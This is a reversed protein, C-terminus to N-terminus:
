KVQEATGLKQYTEIAANVAKAAGRSTYTAGALGQVENKGDPAAKVIKVEGDKGAFRALFEPDSGRSGIGPTEANSIVAAGKVSGDGNMVILMDLGDTNYGNVTVEFSINGAGDKLLKKINDPKELAYGEAQWDTVIRLYDAGGGTVSTYASKIKETVAGSTDPIVYTDMLVLAVCVVFVIAMLVLTPKIKLKM